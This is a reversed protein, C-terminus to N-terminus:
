TEKSRYVSAADERGEIIQKNKQTQGGAIKLVIIVM